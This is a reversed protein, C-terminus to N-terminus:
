ICVNTFNRNGLISHAKNIILDEETTWTSRRALPDLHNYWRSRCHNALRGKMEKAVLAWQKTGYKGVLELIKEDEEKSWHCKLNPNLHKTDSDTDVCLNPDGDEEMSRVYLNGFKIIFM